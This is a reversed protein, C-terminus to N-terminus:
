QTKSITWPSRNIYHSNNSNIYYSNNVTCRGAVHFCPQLLCPELMIGEFCEIGCSKYLGHKFKVFEALVMNVGVMNERRRSESRWSWKLSGHARAWFSFLQWHVHGYTLMHAGHKQGSYQMEAAAATSLWNHVCFQNCWSQKLSGHPM